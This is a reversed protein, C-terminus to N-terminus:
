LALVQQSYSKESTLYLETTGVKLIDSIIIIVIIIIIICSAYIFLYIPLHYYYYHCM